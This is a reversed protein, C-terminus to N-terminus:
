FQFSIDLLIEAIYTPSFIKRSEHCFTDGNNYIIKPEM